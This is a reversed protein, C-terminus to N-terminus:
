ALSTGHDSTNLLPHLVAFLEDAYRDITFYGRVWARAEHGLREGLGPCEQLRKIKEALDGPNGPDYLLGNVGDKILEATAASRAGIVPRGSFMGEITVRGFAESRSCVLVIDSSLMLPLASRVQGTFIVRDELSNSGVLAELHRRYEPEGQGVILLEGDIGATRLHRLALIADEQGKGEILAGAIVCRFRGTPRTVSCDNATSPTEGVIAKHMSPYIVFVKSPEMSQAYKSALAHSVCICRASLRDIMALSLRDGFLFSLGQDEMGFEHLYWVHPRGCLRSALAGVSLTATNTCVIDCRWQHIVKAIVITSIITGLCMKLWVSFRAKGRCMWLPFSIVQIEVGLRMLEDLLAGREPVIVRCEAGRSRLAEITELLVREAGGTGASHSIFCVRVSDSGRTNFKPLLDRSSWLLSVPRRLPHM